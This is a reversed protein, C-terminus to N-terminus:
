ITNQCCMGAVVDYAVWLAENGRARGNGSLFAVYQTPVSGSEPKGSQLVHM